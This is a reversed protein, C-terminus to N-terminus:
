KKYKNIYKLPTLCDLEVSFEAFNLIAALIYVMKAQSNVLRLIHSVIKIKLGIIKTKHHFLQIWTLTTNVSGALLLKFM